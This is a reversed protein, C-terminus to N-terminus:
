QLEAARYKRLIRIYCQRVETYKGFKNMKAVERLNHGMLFVLMYLEYEKPTLLQRLSLDLELNGISDNRDAIDCGFDDLEITIPENRHDRRLTKLRNEVCHHVFTKLKAGKKADFKKIVKEAM